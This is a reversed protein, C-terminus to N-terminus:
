SRGLLQMKAIKALPHYHNMSMDITSEIATNIIEGVLVLTITILLILFEVKSLDVFFCATLIILAALLHIRMNRQTRVTKLLERNAYNFSEVIKRIKM